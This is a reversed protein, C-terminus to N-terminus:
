MHLEIRISHLEQVPGKVEFCCEYDLLAILNCYGLTSSQVGLSIVMPVCETYSCVSDLAQPSFLLLGEWCNTWTPQHEQTHNHSQM